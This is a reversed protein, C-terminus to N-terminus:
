RESPSEPTLTAEPTEGGPPLRGAAREAAVYAILPDVAGILLGDPRVSCWGEIGRELLALSDAGIADGSPDASWRNYATLYGRLVGAYAVRLLRNGRDEVWDRCTLAAVVIARTKTRPVPAANAYSVGRRRIYAAAIPFMADAVAHSPNRGCYGDIAEFFEDQSGTGLLDGTPDPGVVNFGSIFGLVWLRYVSRRLASDQDTGSRAARWAGCTPSGPARYAPKTDDPLVPAPPVTAPPAAPQLSLLLAALMHTM